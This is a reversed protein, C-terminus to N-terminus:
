FVIRFMSKYMNQIELTNRIRWTGHECKPGYIKRLIKREGTMLTSAIKGTITWTESGYFIIPRITTKYTKIKM